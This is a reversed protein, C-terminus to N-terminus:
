ARVRADQRRREKPERVAREVEGDHGRVRAVGDEGTGRGPGDRAVTVAADRAL